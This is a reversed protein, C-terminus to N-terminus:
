CLQWMKISDSYSNILIYVCSDPIVLPVYVVLSRDEPDNSWSSQWQDRARWFDGMAAPIIMLMVILFSLHLLDCTASKSNSGDFWPKQGSGDPFWGNTGGVAVNLILYFASLV